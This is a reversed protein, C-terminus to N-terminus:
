QSVEIAGGLIESEVYEPDPVIILKGPVLSRFPNNIPVPQFEALVWWLQAADFDIYRYHFQAISALTDGDSVTHAINDSRDIYSLPERDELYAIGDSDSAIDSFRYRSLETRAERPM